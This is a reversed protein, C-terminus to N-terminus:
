RFGFVNRRNIRLGSPHTGEISTKSHLAHATEYGRVGSPVHPVQTCSSKSHARQRYHVCASECETPVCVPRADFHQPRRRYSARRPDLARPPHPTMGSVQESFVEHTQVSVGEHKNYIWAFDEDIARRIQGLSTLTNVNIGDTIDAVDQIIKAKHNTVVANGMNTIAALAIVADQINKSTDASLATEAETKTSELGLFAKMSELVSDITTRCLALRETAVTLSAPVHLSNTVSIQLLFKELNGQLDKFARLFFSIETLVHTDCVSVSNQLTYTLESLVTGIGTALTSVEGLNISDLTTNLSYTHNSISKATDYLIKYDDLKGINEFKASSIQECNLVIEALLRQQVDNVPYVEHTITHDVTIVDGQYNVSHRSVDAQGTSQLTVADPSDYWLFVNDIIASLYLPSVLKYDLFNADLDSHFLRFNATWNAELTTKVVGWSFLTTNYEVIVKYRVITAVITDLFVNSFSFTPLNEYAGSVYTVTNDYIYHCVLLTMQGLKMLIPEGDYLDTKGIGIWDGAENYSAPSYFYCCVDKCNVRTTSCSFTYPGDNEALWAKQQSPTFNPRSKARMSVPMSPQEFAIKAVYPLVPDTPGM